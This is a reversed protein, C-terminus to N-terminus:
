TARVMPGKKVAIVVHRFCTRLVAHGVLATAEGGIHEKDELYIVTVERSLQDTPRGDESCIKLLGKSYTFCSFICLIGQTLYLVM